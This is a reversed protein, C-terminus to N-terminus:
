NREDSIAVSLIRKSRRRTHKSITTHCRPNSLWSPISLCTSVSRRLTRTLWALCHNRLAKRAGVDSRVASTLQTRALTMLAVMVAARNLDTITRFMATLTVLRQEAVLGIRRVRLQRLELLTLLPTAVCRYLRSLRAEITMSRCGRLGCGLLLRVCPCSSAFPPIKLCHSEPSGALSPVWM